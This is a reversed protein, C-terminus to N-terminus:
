PASEQSAQPNTSLEIHNTIRELSDGLSNQSQLFMTINVIFVVLILGVLILGIGALKKVPAEILNSTDVNEYAEPCVRVTDDIDMTERIRGAIETMKRRLYEPQGVYFGAFGLGLCVYYVTLREDAAPTNEALTEDLLDFFKEDGSHEGYDRAMEQWDPAFNLSSEKITFDVFFLMPMKVKEFQMFLDPDSSATNEMEKFLNMLESRVATADMQVGKRASRNLRCVYQFFPESVVLLAM